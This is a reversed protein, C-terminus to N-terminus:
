STMKGTVKPWLFRGSATYILIDGSAAMCCGMKTVIDPIKLPFHKIAWFLFVINVL